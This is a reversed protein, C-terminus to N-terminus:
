PRRQEPGEDQGLADDSDDKEDDIITGKKDPEIPDRQPARQPQAGPAGPAEKQNQKDKRDPNKDNNNQNPMVPLLLLSPALTAGPM